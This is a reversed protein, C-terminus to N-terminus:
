SQCCYFFRGCEISVSCVGFVNGFTIQIQVLFLAGDIDLVGSQNYPTQFYLYAVVIAQIQLLSYFGFM